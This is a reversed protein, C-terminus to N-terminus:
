LGGLMGAISPPSLLSGLRRWVSAGPSAWSRSNAQGCLTLRVSHGQDLAAQLRPGERADLQQWAAAWAAGDDALAADRLQQAVQAGAPSPPPADAPLAGNGSVWFSNVPLLGARQREDNLPVTYLLMQMEQQLRRLPRGADGGAMWGDVTRGVVRDLSATPLARFLEGRALWRLPAQYELYIGDEAFYPAMLALLARSDDGDLQLEQPHAMVIHDRAVRWHSPTIWAWPEDAVLRGGHRLQLAALPLLGDAVPLGCARAFAREHPMSLDDVTGRDVGPAGLRGLLRRLQPLQLGPLARACAESACAAFPVILHVGDSVATNDPIGCDGAICV